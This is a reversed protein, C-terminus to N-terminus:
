TASGKIILTKILHEFEPQYKPFNNKDNVIFSLEFITQGDIIKVTRGRGGNSREVDEILALKSVITAEELQNIKTVDGAAQADRYVMKREQLIDEAVFADQRTYKSIMLSAAEQPATIMTFELLTLNDAKLQEKIYDKMMKVRDQPYEQWEKPYEFKMGWKDFTLCQASSVQPIEQATSISVFGFLLSLLIIVELRIIKFKSQSM